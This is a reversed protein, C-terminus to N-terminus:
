PKKTPSSSKTTADDDTDAAKKPASQKPIIDVGLVQAWASNYLDWVQRKTLEFKEMLANVQEPRREFLLSSSPWRGSMICYRALAHMHLRNFEEKTQQATNRAAVFLTSKIADQYQIRTIIRHRVCKTQKIETLFPTDDNLSNFEDDTLAWRDEPVTAKKNEPFLSDIHTRWEHLTHYVPIHKVLAPRDFKGNAKKYLAWNWLLYDNKKSQLYLDQKHQETLSDLYQKASEPGQVKGLFAYEEQETSTPTYQLKREKLKSEVEKLIRHMLSSAARVSGLEIHPAERLIWAAMDTAFATHGNKTFYDSGQAVDLVFDKLTLKNWFSKPTLAYFQNLKMYQDETIRRNKLTSDELERRNKQGDFGLRPKKLQFAHITKLGPGNEKRKTTTVISYEIHPKTTQTTPAPPPPPKADDDDDARTRKFVPVIKLKAPIRSTQKSSLASLRRREEEDSDYTPLDEDDESEQLVTTTPSDKKTKKSDHPHADEDSSSSSEEESSSEAIRRGRLLAYANM